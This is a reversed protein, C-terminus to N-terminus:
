TGENSAEEELLDSLKALAEKWGQEHSESSQHDALGEHTFTLLTGAGDQELVYTVRSTVGDLPDRTTSETWRWSHVLCHPPEIKEYIGEAAMEGQPGIMTFAFRGGVVVDAALETVRWDHPGFWRAMQAPDTCAAFVRDPSSRFRRVIQLKAGKM